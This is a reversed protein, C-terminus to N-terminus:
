TQYLSTNHDNEVEPPLLTDYNKYWIIYVYYMYMTFHTRPVLIQYRTGGTVPLFDWSFGTGLLINKGYDIGWYTFRTM